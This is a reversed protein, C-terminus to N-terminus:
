FCYAIVFRRRTGFLVTFKYNKYFHVLSSWSITQVFNREAFMRCNIFLLGYYLRNVKFSNRSFGIWVFTSCGRASRGDFNYCYLIIIIFPWSFFTQKNPSFLLPLLEAITFTSSKLAALPFCPRAIRKPLFFFFFFIGHKMRRLEWTMRSVVQFDRDTNLWLHATDTTRTRECDALTEQMLSARSLNEGLFLWVLFFNSQSGIKIGFLLM